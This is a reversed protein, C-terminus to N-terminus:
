KLHIFYNVAKTSMFLPHVCPVIQTMHSPFNLGYSRHIYMCLFSYKIPWNSPRVEFITFSVSANILTHFTSCISSIKTYNQIQCFHVKFHYLPHKFDLCLCFCKMNPPMYKPHVHKINISMWASCFIVPEYEDINHKNELVIDSSKFIQCRRTQLAQKFDELSHKYRM